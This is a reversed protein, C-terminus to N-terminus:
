KWMRADFSFPEAKRIRIRAFDPHSPNLLCNNERPIVASPVILVATRESELWKMGRDRLVRNDLRRWDRPLDSSMLRDRPVDDPIEASRTALGTPQEDPGINVFFELAALSLHESTYVIRVGARHWRASRLLGGEGDFASHAKHSLRWVLM